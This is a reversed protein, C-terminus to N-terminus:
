FLQNIINFTDLSFIIYSNKRRKAGKDKKSIYVKNGLRVLRRLETGIIQVIMRMNTITPAM